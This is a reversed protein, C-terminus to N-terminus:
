LNIVQYIDDLVNLNLMGDIVEIQRILSNKRINEVWVQLNQAWWYDIGGFGAHLIIVYVDKESRNIVTTLDELLKKSMGYNTCLTYGTLDVMGKDIGLKFRNKVLINREYPFWFGSHFSLDDDTPYRFKLIIPKKLGPNKDFKLSDTDIVLTPPIIFILEDKDRLSRVLKQRSM